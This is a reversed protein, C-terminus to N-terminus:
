YCPRYYVTEQGVSAIYREFLSQDIHVFTHLSLTVLTYHAPPLSLPAAGHTDLRIGPPKTSLYQMGSHNIINKKFCHFLSLKM